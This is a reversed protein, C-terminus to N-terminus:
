ANWIFSYNMKVGPGHKRYSYYKENDHLTCEEAIEFSIKDDSIGHTEFFRIIQKKNEAVLNFHTDTKRDIQYCDECIAPAFHITIKEESNKLNQILNLSDELQELLKTSIHAQTGKRGAHVVAILNLPEYRVLIPLCDATKISLVINDLTTYCGDAKKIEFIKSKDFHKQTIQTIINSHIQEMKVLSIKQIELPLMEIAQEINSCNKGTIFINSNTM